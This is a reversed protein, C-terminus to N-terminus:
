SLPEVEQNSLVRHHGQGIIEKFVNEVEIQGSGGLEIARKTGTITANVIKRVQVFLARAAEDKGTEWNKRDM